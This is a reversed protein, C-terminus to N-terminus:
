TRGRSRQRRSHPCKFVAVIHTRMSGSNLHGCVVVGCVVVVVVVTHCCSTHACKLLVVVAGCATTM